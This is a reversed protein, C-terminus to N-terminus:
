SITMFVINNEKDGRRNSFFLPRKDKDLSDFSCFDAIVKIQDEPVGLEILQETIYKALNFHNNKINGPFYDYFEDGVQYNKESIGPWILIKIEDLGCIAVRFTEIIKQPLLGYIERWGCHAIISAQGNSIMIVPCDATPCILCIKRRDNKSKFYIVAEYNKLITEKNQPALGCAIRLNHNPVIKIFCDTKVANKLNEWRKKTIFIHGNGNTRADGFAVTSIGCVINKPMFGSFFLFNGCLSYEAKVM